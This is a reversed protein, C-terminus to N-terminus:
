QGAFDSTGADGLGLASRLLPVIEAERTTEVIAVTEGQTQRVLARYEDLTWGTTRANAGPIPQGAANYRCAGPAFMVVDWRTSELKTIFDDDSVSTSFTSPNGIMPPLFGSARQAMAPDCGRVLVAKDTTGGGNSPVPPAGQLVQAMLADRASDAHCSADNSPCTDASASLLLLLAAALPMLFMSM